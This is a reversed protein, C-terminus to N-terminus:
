EHRIDGPRRPRPVHPRFGLYHTTEMADDAKEISSEIEVVDAPAETDDENDSTLAINVTLVFRGAGVTAWLNM